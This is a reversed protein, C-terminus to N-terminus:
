DYVLTQNMIGQSDIIREYYFYGGIYYDRIDEVKRNGNKYLLAPIFVDSPVDYESEHSRETAEQIM